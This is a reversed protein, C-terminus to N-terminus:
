SRPFSVVVRRNQARGAPNDHGNQTNPAVPHAEGHGRTVIRPARSGGLAARLARQVSSARRRSLGLNYAASGVSDTYGDVLISNVGASPLRGALRDITQRATATLTSKNFAFLVDSSLTVTTVSGRDRQVELAQISDQVDIPVVAPDVNIPIVSAEIHTEALVSASVTGPVVAVVVLGLLAALARSVRM